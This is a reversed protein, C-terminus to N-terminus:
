RKKLERLIQIAYSVRDRAQAYEKEEIQNSRALFELNKLMLEQRVIEDKIKRNDYLFSLKPLRVIPKSIETIKLDKKCCLRIAKWVIGIGICILGTIFVYTFFDSLIMPIPFVAYVFMSGFLLFLGGYLIWSSILKEEGRISIIDNKMM